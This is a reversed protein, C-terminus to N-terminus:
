GQGIGGPLIMIDVLDNASGAGLILCCVNENAAGAPDWLSIRGDTEANGRAGADVNAQTVTEALKGIGIGFYQVNGKQGDTIIEATFGFIPDALAAPLAISAMSGRVALFAAIDTGTKNKGDLYLPNRPAAAIM